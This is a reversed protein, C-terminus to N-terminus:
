DFKLKNIEHLLDHVDKHNYVDDTIDKTSHGVIKKLIVKDMGCKDGQTVFTHRTCHPTQDTNLYEKLREWYVNMFTRYAVPRGFDNEILYKKNNSYHKEILPLIENHIPIIRNQGAKTKKGGIMYREELHVNEKKMELLETIRMGTYLLIVAIDNYKHNFGKIQEIQELTFPKRKKREVKQPVLFVSLDKDVIGNKMAQAYIHQIVNKYGNQMSPKLSFMADELNHVKVERIKLRHIQYTQNFASVYGKVTVPKLNTTDKWRNFLDLMTVDKTDLNYPNVLYERLAASAERKTAHYGVYKYKQKGEITWGVTVRIAYPKRRKGSLKIISGEGNGRRM